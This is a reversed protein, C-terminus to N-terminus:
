AESLHARGVLAEQLFGKLAGAQRMFSELAEDYLEFDEAVEDESLGPGGDRVQCVVDTVAYAMREFDPSDEAESVADAPGAAVAELAELQSRARALEVQCAGATEAAAVASRFADGDECGAAARLNLSHWRAGLAEVAGPTRSM